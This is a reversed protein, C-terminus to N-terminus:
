LLVIGIFFSVVFPIHKKSATIAKRHFPKKIHIISQNKLFFTTSVKVM